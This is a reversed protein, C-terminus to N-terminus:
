KFRATVVDKTEMTVGKVGKLDEPNPPQDGLMGFQKMGKPDKLVENLDVETLTITDGQVHSADTSAIGGNLRVVLRVKTDRLMAAMMAGGAAAMEEAAKKAEPDAPPEAKKPKPHTITLTGDKLGFTVPIDKGKEKEDGGASDGLNKNSTYGLKRVDTFSYTAKVGAFGDADSAKEFGTLTVGPGLSAARKEFSAREFFEKTAKVANTGSDTTNSGGLAGAMVEGIQNVMGEMGQKAAASLLLTEEITGSGDKNVTIVSSDRMCGTLGSVAALVLALHCLASLKM